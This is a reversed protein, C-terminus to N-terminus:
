RPPPVRNPLMPRASLDFQVIMGKPGVGFVQDLESAGLSNLNVDWYRTWDRDRFHKLFAAHASGTVVLSTGSWTAASFYSQPSLSALKWTAGGDHSFAINQGGRQPEKYDGGVIVGDQADRFAISFAGASDGRQFPLDLAMWTIGRDKSHFVRARKGGTVFWVDSKGHVAICTGSAAFAGEGVNAKPIIGNPISHWHEGGDQTTILQFKDDVPDGLAIGHQRDWFAMCDFFGKPDQNTFRLAWKQGGDVTKYIRSQDGPGASLLIATRADFAEVDRFDLTEAGAVSGVLWTRGNDISRLYTGQTGSAWLVGKPLVALGRLNATTGSKLIAMEQAWCWTTVWLLFFIVKRMKM